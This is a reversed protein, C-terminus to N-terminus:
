LLGVLKDIDLVRGAAVLILTAIVIYYLRKWREEQGEYFKDMNERMLRLDSKMEILDREVGGVRREILERHLYCERRTVPEDADYNQHMREIDM